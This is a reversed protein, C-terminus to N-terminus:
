NSSIQNTAALVFLMSVVLYIRLSLAQWEDLSRSFSMTLIGSKVLGRFTEGIGCLCLVKSIPVVDGAVLPMLKNSHVVAPM